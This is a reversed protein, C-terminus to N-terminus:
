ESLLLCSVVPLPRPAALRHIERLYCLLHMLARARLSQQTERSTTAIADTCQARETDAGTLYTVNTPNISTAVLTLLGTAFQKSFQGPPIYHRGAYHFRTLQSNQSYTPTIRSEDISKTRAPQPRATISAHNLFTQTTFSSPFTRAARERGKFPKGYIRWHTGNTAVPIEGTKWSTM